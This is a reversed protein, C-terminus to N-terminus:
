SNSLCGNYTTRASEIFRADVDVVEFGPIDELLLLLKETFDERSLDGGFDGRVATALDCIQENTLPPFNNLRQTDNM